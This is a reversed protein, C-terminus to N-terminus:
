WSLRTIVLLAILPLTEGSRWNATKKCRGCDQTKHGVIVIDLKKIPVQFNELLGRRVCTEVGCSPRTTLKRAEWARPKLVSYWGLNQTVPM